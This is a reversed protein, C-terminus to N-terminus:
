VSMPDSLIVFSLDAMFGKDRYLAYMQVDTMAILVATHTKAVGGENPIVLRAKGRGAEVHGITSLTGLPRKWTVLSVWKALARRESISAMFARCQYTYKGEDDMAIAPFWNTNVAEVQFDIGNFSSM